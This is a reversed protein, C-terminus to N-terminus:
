WNVKNYFFAVEETPRDDASPKSRQRIVTVGELVASTRRTGTPIGTESVLAEVFEIRVRAIAQRPIGTLNFYFMKALQSGRDVEVTMQGRGGKRGRVLHLTAPDSVRVAHITSEAVHLTGQNYIGGGQSPAAPKPASGGAARQALAQASAASLLLALLATKRM